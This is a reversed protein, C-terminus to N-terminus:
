RNDFVVVNITPSTSGTLKVYIQPADSNKAGNGFQSNFAGDTTWTIANGTLDLLPLLTTGRDPSWFWAVTGGGFNNGGGGYAALTAIWSWFARPRIIECVFTGTSNGSLAVAYRAM